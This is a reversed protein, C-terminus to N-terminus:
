PYGDRRDRRLVALHSHQPEAEAARSLQEASEVIQNKVSQAVRRVRHVLRDLLRQRKHLFQPRLARPKRVDSM